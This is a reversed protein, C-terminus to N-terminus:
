VRINLSSKGDWYSEPMVDMESDADLVNAVFGKFGNEQRNNNEERLSFSLGGDKTNFGAAEFAKELSQVDKQLAELAESRSAVVEATIKGDKGIQMKVQITGLDQPKLQIDIKDIGKIASKTINVKVQEVVEREMGKYVDKLSTKNLDQLNEVNHKHAAEVVPAAVSINTEVVDAKVQSSDAAFAFNQVPSHQVADVTQSAAPTLKVNTEEVADAVANEKVAPKPAAALEKHPALEVKEDKVSVEVKMKKGPELVEAIKAAQMETEALEEAPVDSSKEVVAFKAAAVKAEVEKLPVIEPADFLEIGDLDAQAVNNEKMVFKPNEVQSLSIEGSAVKELLESGTLVVEENSVPNTFLVFAVQSIFNRLADLEEKSPIHLDSVAAADEVAVESETKVAKDNSVDDKVAVSSSNEEEAKGAAKKEEPKEKASATKNEEKVPANDSVKAEKKNSKVKVEVAEPQRSSVPQKNKEVVPRKLEAVANAKKGVMGAFDFDASVNASKSFNLLNLVNNIEKIEM